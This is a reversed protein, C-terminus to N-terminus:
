MVAVIGNDDKNIQGYTFEDFMVMDDFRQALSDIHAGQQDTLALELDIMFCAETPETIKATGKSKLQDMGECAEQTSIVDTSMAMGLLGKVITFTVPYRPYLSRYGDLCRYFYPRRSRDTEPSRIAANAVHLCATHWFPTPAETSFHVQYSVLLRKLQSVSATSIIEAPRESISVFGLPGNDQCLAM